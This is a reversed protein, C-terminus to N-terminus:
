EQGNQAGETAPKEGRAAKKIATLQDGLGKEAVQVDLENSKQDRYIGVSLAAGLAILTETFKGEIKGSLHILGLMLFVCAIFILVKADPSLKVRIAISINKAKLQLKM